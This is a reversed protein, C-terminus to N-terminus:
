DNPIRLQTGPAISFPDLIEPNIDLIKWWLNSAGVYRLALNDLRDTEVWDYLFFTATYSPFERNVTLEYTNSRSDFAKYIKGDVYRSDLFIM